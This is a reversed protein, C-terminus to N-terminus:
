WTATGSKVGTVVNIILTQGNNTGKIGTATLVGNTGPTTGAAATYCNPATAGSLAYTYYADDSPQDFQPLATGNNNAENTIQYSCEKYANKLNTRAAARAAKETMGMYAPVAIAALVALVAVVVVLEILSFGGSGSKKNLVKRTKSNQLYAQLATMQFEIIENFIM